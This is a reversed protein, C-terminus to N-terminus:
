KILEQHFAYVLFITVALLDACGGASINRKIFEADMQKLRDLSGRSYAGGKELFEIAIEHVEELVEPSHRAIINSDEVQSMLAFLTELKILNWNREEEIGLLMVPLSIERVSAYGSIAEGRIGRSGYCKLNKEGYTSSKKHLLEQIEQELIEKVMAQELEVLQELVLCGHTRFCAGVAASLIGLNFILGKHTNVGGTAAYMAKEATIGIRRIDDFLLRPSDAMMMGQFAMASFYPQLVMASREFTHYDMDTHAGNSYLDVLGPKPSTYVEDLLSIYALFGIEKAQRRLKQEM